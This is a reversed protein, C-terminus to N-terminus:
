YSNGDVYLQVISTSKQLTDIVRQKGKLSASILEYSANMSTGTGHSYNRM